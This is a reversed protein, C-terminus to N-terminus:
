SFPSNHSRPKQAGELKIFTGTLPDILPLGTDPDLEVKLNETNVVANDSVRVPLSTPVLWKPRNSIEPQQGHDDPADESQEDGSHTADPDWNEDILDFDVTKIYSYWIDTKKYVTAGSWGHGGGKCSGPLLGGPDEQWAVAAISFAFSSPQDKPFGILPPFGTFM